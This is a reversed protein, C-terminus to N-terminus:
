RYLISIIIAAGIVIRYWGFHKLGYKSLVSLLGKISLTAFVFSLTLGLLIFDLQSSNISPIIKYGKYLGAAMLTPVALFFSYETAEKQNLGINLGGIITAASRSVGPIFAFCQIFGLILAQKYSISNLSVKAESHSSKQDYFILIIGGLFLALAVVLVHSLLAEIQNKFILGIFAAPLFSTLIKLYFQIRIPFFKKRYLFLVSLIAGFQIIINFSQVFTDNNIGMATSFLILHGTSSIPLFETIGEILSLLIVDLYTM